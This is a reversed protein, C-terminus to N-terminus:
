GLPSQLLADLNREHAAQDLRYPRLLLIALANLGATVPLYVLGLNRLVEPAVTGQQAHAPFGIVAILASGGFAGIGAGIKPILGRVAFLLGETHARTRVASDDTIDAFMSGLVITGMLSLGTVLFGDLLLIPVLWPSGNPPMLGVLRLSIPILSIILSAVFVSIMARKKGARESVRRALVAGLFVAPGYALLMVGAVQPSLGWFYLNLYPHVAAQIGVAISSALGSATLVLLSPNRLAGLIEGVGLGRLGTRDPARRLTPILKRTSWSSWLTSILILVAAIEGWTSYGARNLVGLTHTKDHRLFVVNLLVIMLGAAVIGFYLRVAIVRTRAHYDATIEPGLAASPIEYLATCLRVVVLVVLMYVFLADGKVATPPHWLAWFAVACPVASAFMFGHRRGLRGRTRDSWLGILPDAFADIIQSVMLAVGVLLAPMGVVLFLFQSIVATSLAQGAIGSAVAGLGYGYLTRPDVRHPNAAAM